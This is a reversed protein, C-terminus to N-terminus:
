AVLGFPKTREVGHKDRYNATKSFNGGEERGQKSIFLRAQRFAPIGEEREADPNAHEYMQVTVTVIREQSCRCRRFFDDSGGGLLLHGGNREGIGVAEVRCHREVLSRLFRLDFWDNTHSKVDFKLGRIECRPM